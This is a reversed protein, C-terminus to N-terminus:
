EEDEDEDFEEDGVYDPEEEDEDFFEDGEYEDEEVEEPDPLYENVPEEGPGYPTQPINPDYM